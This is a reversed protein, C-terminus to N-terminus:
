PDAGGAGEGGGARAKKPTQQVRVREALMERARATAVEVVRAREEFDLGVFLKEVTRGVRAADGGRDLIFSILADGTLTYFSRVM